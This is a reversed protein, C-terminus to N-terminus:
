GSAGTVFGPPPTSTALVEQLHQGVDSLLSCSNKNDRGARKQADRMAMWLRLPSDGHYNALAAVGDAARLSLGRHRRTRSPTLVDDRPRRQSPHHM